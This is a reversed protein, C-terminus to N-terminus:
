LYLIGVPLPFGNAAAERDYFAVVLTKRDPSYESRLIYQVSQTRYVAERRSKPLTPIAYQELEAKKMKLSAGKRFRAARSNM